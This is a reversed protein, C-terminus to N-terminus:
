TQDGGEKHHKMQTEMRALQIREQHDRQAMVFLWQLYERKNKPDPGREKLHLREDRQKQRRTRGIRSMAEILTQENKSIM